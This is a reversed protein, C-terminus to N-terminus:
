RFSRSRRSTGCWRMTVVVDPGGFADAAFKMLREVAGLDALDAQCYVAHIGHREALAAADPAIAGAQELGHLVINFGAAALGEAVALGLGGSASSGTILASRLPQTM